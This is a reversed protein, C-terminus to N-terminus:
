KRNGIEWTKPKFIDTGIMMMSEPNDTEFIRFIHRGHKVSLSCSGDVSASCSEKNDVSMTLNYMSYNDLTVESVTDTEAQALGVAFALTFVVFLKAFKM